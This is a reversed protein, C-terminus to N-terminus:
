IDEILKAREDREIREAIAGLVYRSLTVNRYAAAIRIAKQQEESIRIALRNVKEQTRKMHAM